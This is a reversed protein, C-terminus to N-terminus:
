DILILLIQLLQHSGVRLANIHGEERLSHGAGQVTTLRSNRWNSRLTLAQDLPCVTDATGHILLAPLHAIASLNDLVQNPLLFCKHINYHIFARTFSLVYRDNSLMKQIAEESPPKPTNTLQYRMIACAMAMHVEPDPHMIRSYTAAPIDDREEEPISELFQLYAEPSVKGMDRFFGIDQDRGLFIGQLLFGNVSAPHAEGYALALLSGFSHGFVAWNEIGLHLRLQEIDEVLYATTNEEMSAFPTSRMAGRQDFLIVHWKDLEFFQLYEESTGLGPGGHLVVVPTGEPNGYTAYYIRHLDSVALYGEEIPSIASLMSVWFTILLVFVRNM